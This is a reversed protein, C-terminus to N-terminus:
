RRSTVFRLRSDGIEIVDDHALMLPGELRRGNLFTGTKAGRDWLTCHGQDERILIHERSVARDSIVIDNVRTSRGVKTDGQNLQHTRNAGEDLLWANAKPRAPPIPPREPHRERVAPSPVPPPLPGPGAAQECTPCAGLRADFLHGHECGRIGQYTIAYGVAVVVPVIGGILGIYFFTERLNGLQSRTEPSFGFIVSPVLLLAPLITGMKWGTERIRRSQSDYIVWAIAAVALLFFIVWGGIGWEEFWWTFFTNTVDM